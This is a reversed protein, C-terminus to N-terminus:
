MLYNWRFQRCDLHVHVVHVNVSTERWPFMCPSKSRLRRGFGYAEVVPTTVVGLSVREEYAIVYYNGVLCTMVGYHGTRGM